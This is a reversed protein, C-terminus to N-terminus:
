RLIAARIEDATAPGEMPWSRRHRECLLACRGREAAVGAEFAAKGACMLAAIDPVSMAEAARRMGPSALLLDGIERPSM